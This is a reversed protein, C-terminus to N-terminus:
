MDYVALLGGSGHGQVGADPERAVLAQLVDANQRVLGLLGDDDADWFMPTEGLDIFSSDAEVAAAYRDALDAAERYRIDEVLEIFGFLPAPIRGGPWHERPPLVLGYNTFGLVAALTGRRLGAGFQGDKSIRANKQSLWPCVMASYVICSLHLPGSPELVFERQEGRITAADAQGFARYVPRGAPMTYGCVACRRHLGLASKRAEHVQSLVPLGHEWGAEAPVVFGRADRPLDAIWPPVAIEIEDTRTVNMGKKM